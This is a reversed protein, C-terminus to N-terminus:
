RRPRLGNGTSDLVYPTERGERAATLNERSWESLGLGKGRRAETEVSSAFAEAEELSSLVRCHRYDNPYNQQLAIM